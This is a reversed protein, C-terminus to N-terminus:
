FLHIYIELKTIHEVWLFYRVNQYLYYAFSAYWQHKIGRCDLNSLPCVNTYPQQNTGMYMYESIQAVFQKWKEYSILIFSSVNRTGMSVLMVSNYERSCVIYKKDM